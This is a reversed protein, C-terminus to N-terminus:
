KPFTRNFPAFDIVLTDHRSLDPRIIFDKFALYEDVTINEPILEEAHIRIFQWQGIQPRLAFYAWPEQLTAEQGTHAWEALISSQLNLEAHENCYESFIQEIDSKLLFPRGKQFHRKLLSYIVDRYAQTLDMLDKAVQEM